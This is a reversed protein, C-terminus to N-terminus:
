DSIALALLRSSVKMGKFEALLQNIKFKVRSDTIVFEIVGQTEGFGAIDSITLVGDNANNFSYKTLDAQHQQDIFLLHCTEAPNQQTRVDVVELTKGQSQQGRLKEFAGDAFGLDTVCLTLSNGAKWKASDQWSIYKTFNFLYAVKIQASEATTIPQAIAPLHIVQLLMLLSVVILRKM